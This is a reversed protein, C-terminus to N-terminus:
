NSSIVALIELNGLIRWIFRLSRPLFLYGKLVKLFTIESMKLM